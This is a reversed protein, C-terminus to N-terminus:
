RRRDRFQLYWNIVEDKTIEWEDDWGAVHKRKFAQYCGLAAGSGLADTCIALALQAPGSGGYGWNFESSHKRVDVCDALPLSQGNEVKIVTVGSAHHRESEITGDRRQTAAYLRWGVYKAKQSELM